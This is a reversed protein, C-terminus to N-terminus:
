DRAVWDTFSKPEDLWDVLGASTGNSRTGAVRVAVRVEDPNGITQQSMRFRVRDKTYDVTMEWSGDVPQGWKGVGFGDTHLLQYDTGQFFGGVFVREPGNNDPDTDVYVAGGSGTAPDPRLNAHTTVVLLNNANNRVVVSRLDSGHGTDAPDKVGIGAANAPGALGALLAAVSATATGVITRNM